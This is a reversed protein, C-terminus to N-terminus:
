EFLDLFMNEDLITVGLKEAKTLKSGTAQGAVLFSTKSSISSSVKGGGAEIRERAEDRTCQSLTGTLVFTKGAISAIEQANGTYLTNLGHRKLKSLLEQNSPAGFWQVVSQAMKDGIEHIAVLAEETAKELVELNKFSQALTKSASKGIFPIGLGMLLKELSQTKSKELSELVNKASKEAMRELESLKEETLTYLDALSKILKNELLQQILSPGINEINMANRSVFYEISRQVQAPCQLNECKLAVEEENQVLVSQCEPCKTPALISKAQKPRKELIVQTIKPIIEGGKEVLVTDKLCLGLREIEDFNHLTARKVETGALSVPKLEAVPTVTGTRGVQYTVSELVTEAAQAKFKYSMAWKPSKATSGMRSQYTFSSVKLVMGDIDYPLDNREVDWRQCIAMIEQVTQVKERHPNVPFGWKELTHLNDWHSEAGPREELLSYAFFDLNRRAVVKPDKLKLSGSATNRPNQLAKGQEELTHQYLTQFNEHSMYVEGRVEIRHNPATQPLSLPITAIAKVNPTIDDGQSGDGRTVARVMMRNEYIISLAAGDIKLEVVYELPCEQTSNPSDELSSKGLDEDQPLVIGERVQRDFDQVEEESYTNGISLMPTEHVIKPFGPTLDNGVRLTPSHPDHLEPHKKELDELEKYLSDYEQDSM